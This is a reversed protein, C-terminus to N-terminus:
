LFRFHSSVIVPLPFPLRFRFTELVRITFFSISYNVIRATSSYEPVQLLGLHLLTILVCEATLVRAFSLWSAVQPTITIQLPCGLPMVRLQQHHHCRRRRRRRGNHHHHHRLYAYKKPAVLCVAV